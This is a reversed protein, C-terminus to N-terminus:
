NESESNASDNKIMSREASKYDITEDPDSSTDDYKPNILAAQSEQRDDNEIPIIKSSIPSTTVSTQEAQSRTLPIPTTTSPNNSDDFVSSDNFSNDTESMSSGDREVTASETMTKPTPTITTTTTIIEDSEVQNLSAQLSNVSSISSNETIEESRKESIRRLSLEVAPTIRRPNNLPLELSLEFRSTKREDNTTRNTYSKSNTAKDKQSISRFTNDKYAEVLLKTM